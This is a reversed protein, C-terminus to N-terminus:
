QAAVPGTKASAAQGPATTATDTHDRAQQQQQQQESGAHTHKGAATSTPATPTHLAVYIPGRPEVQEGLFDISNNGREGRKGSGIREDEGMRMLAKRIIDDKTDKQTAPTRQNEQKM